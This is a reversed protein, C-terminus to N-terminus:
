EKITLNLYKISVKNELNTHRIELKINTELRIIELEAMAMYHVKKNFCHIAKVKTSSNLIVNYKNNEDVSNKLIKEILVNNKDLFNYELNNSYIRAGSHVILKIIRLPKSFTIKLFNNKGKGLDTATWKGYTKNKDYLHRIDAWGSGFSNPAYSSSLAVLDTNSVINEEKYVDLNDLTFTNNIVDFSKLSINDKFIEVKGNACIGNLTLNESETLTINGFNKHSSISLIDQKKLLLANKTNLVNLTFM